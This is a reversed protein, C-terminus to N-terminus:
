EEVENDWYYDFTREGMERNYMYAKGMTKKVKNIKDEPEYYTITRYVIKPKAYTPLVMVPTALIQKVPVAQTKEEVMRAKELDIRRQTTYVIWQQTVTKMKAIARRYLPSTTDLKRKTTDWPLKTPDSSHFALIGMFGNYQPHWRTFGENGWVTDEDQNGALVIRDNCSVFWGYYDVEKLKIEPSDASDDFPPAAAMGATINILVSKDEDDQFEVKVPKFGEGERLKFPYPEVKVENISVEFGDQLFFSYDRGVMVKLRNIFTTDEFERGIGENFDWIKISTGPNASPLLELEFDWNKEEKEWAPVNIPVRFGEQSTHSTIEIQKGIKLIARKMGIGYLGIADPDVPKLRGFHFAYHEADHVSIGGCNDIIIFEDPSLSIDAKYGSYPGNDTSSGRKEKLQMRAGDLCNDLLDLICDHLSIDRTIMRIFFEKVPAAEAVHQHTM